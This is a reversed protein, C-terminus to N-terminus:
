HKPEMAGSVRRMLLHAVRPFIEKLKMFAAAGIPLIRRYRGDDASDCIARAVKQPSIALILRSAGPMKGREAKVFFETDVTGPCVLAVRVGRGLVEDRLAESYGIMAFKTACYGGMRAYGMIGAISAVNVITGRGRELMQPLAAQTCWVAGFYNTAMMTTLDDPKASEIADFIAFGANNVLVDIEGAGDIVRACEERKSVDAVIGVCEAGLSRLEAAVADLREARRAAIVIKAAGRRAFELAAARGIGSSAGTVVITKGRLSM